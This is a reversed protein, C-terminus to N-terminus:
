QARLITATADEYLVQWGLENQLAKIRDTEKIRLSELGTFHGTINKAACVVAVTQALDPCHTFDYQIESKNEKKSLKLLGNEFKSNVGLDNMIKVIASDGQLSKDLLRPLSLEAKEALATFALWYSTASWDSEVTFPEPKYQQPGIIVQDELVKTDVGFHKMLAATMEIYPRSGIKGELALTLGQPLIPAIM